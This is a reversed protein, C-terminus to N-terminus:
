RHWTYGPDYAPDIDIDDDEVRDLRALSEDIRREYAREEEETFIPDENSDSLIEMTEAERIEALEEDTLEPGQADDRKLLADLEEDTIGFGANCEDPIKFWNQMAHGGKIYKTLEKVTESIVELKYSISREMDDAEIARVEYSEMEANYVALETLAHLIIRISTIEGDIEGRYYEAVENRRFKAIKRHRKTM